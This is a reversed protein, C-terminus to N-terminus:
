PTSTRAGEAQLTRGDCFLLRPSLRASWVHPM